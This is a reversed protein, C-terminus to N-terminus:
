KMKMKELSEVNEEIKSTEKEFEKIESKHTKVKTQLSKIEAQLNEIKKSTEQKIKEIAEKRAKLKKITAELITNIDDDWTTSDDWWTTAWVVASATAIEWVSFADNSIIEEKTEINEETIKEKTEINEDLNFNVNNEEIKNEQETEKDSSELTEEETKDELDFSFKIENEWISKEEEVKKSDESITEENKEWFIDEVTINDEDWGLDFNLDIDSKEINEESKEEIIKTEWFNIINEETPEEQKIEINDLEIPDNDEIILLEDETTATAM